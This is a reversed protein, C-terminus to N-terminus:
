NRMVVICSTMALACLAFNFSFFAVGEVVLVLTGVEEVVLAREALVVSPGKIQHLKLSGPYQFASHGFSFITSATM